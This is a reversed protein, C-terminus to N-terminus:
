APDAPTKNPESLQKKAYNVADTLREYRYGQFRFVMKTECTIGHENMLRTDDDTMLIEKLTALSSRLSRSELWCLEYTPWQM